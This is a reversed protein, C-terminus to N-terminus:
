GGLVFFLCLRLCLFLFSLFVMDDRGFVLRSVDVRDSEDWADKRRVSQNSRTNPNRSVPPYSRTLDRNSTDDYVLTRFPRVSNNREVTFTAAAESPLPSPRDLDLCRCRLVNQTPGNSVGVNSSRRTCTERYPSPIPDTSTPSCVSSVFPPPSPSPSACLPKPSGFGNTEVFCDSPISRFRCPRMVVKMLVLVM